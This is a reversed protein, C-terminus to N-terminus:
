LAACAFFAADWTELLIWAPIAAGCSPEEVCILSKVIWSPWRMTWHAGVITECVFHCTLRAHGDWCIIIKESTFNINFRWYLRPPKTQTVLAIKRQVWNIEKFIKIGSDSSPFSLWWTISARSQISQRSPSLLSLLKIRYPRPCKSIYYPWPNSISTTMRWVIRSPTATLVREPPTM